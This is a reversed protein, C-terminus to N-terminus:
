AIALANAITISFNVATHTGSQSGTTTIFTAAQANALSTSLNFTNANIVTVWYTTSASLGTPLAGSTTLQIRDGSSLGHATWTMVAPAAITVTVTSTAYKNISYYLQDLVLKGTSLTPATGGAFQYPWAYALTRSGTIDQMISIVGTQGAVANTPTGLTRNGGLIVSFNNGLSADIAITAADTLTVFTGRQAKTYSQPTGLVAITDTVAQLTLVGSSGIAPGQLTVGTSTSGSFFVKGLLTGTLGVNLIGANTLRMAENTTATGGVLWNHYGVSSAKNAVYTIPGDTNQFIFQNANAFATGFTTDTYGSSNLFMGAFHTFDNSVALDNNLFYGNYASTGNSTNGTGIVVGNTTNDTGWLEMGPSTGASLITNNPSANGLKTYRANQIINGDFQSQGAQVWLAYSNTITVGTGAVPAGSVTLTGAKTFTAAATTKNYTPAQFLYERQTAVTGDAWTRTAGVVNYGISETAATIGTDASANIKFYSAVGSSRASPSFTHVGTWTPVIAQSLAPAGDSRLFTAASGNIATLGITATPNAGTPITIATINGNLKQIAQLISDTSAVTGAGSVYGTLLKGTIDADTAASIATGTGKLIGTISTAITLAPTAGGSSSGTFGNSSAITIATVYTGAPQKNNFTSWDTNSLKGTNIASAIPLNFKHDGSGNDVIAFDTGTAGVTLTQASTADTNISAIGTASITGNEWQKTTSNYKLVNGNALTSDSISVDHLQFLNRWGGGNPRPQEPLGKIHSADIKFLDNDPLANIKGVIDEGRDPSGDNGDEPVPIQALIKEYDVVADKGDNYDKGKIPTIEKRFNEIEEDTYYDRGKIPADGKDGKLTIVSLGQITVEMSTPFPPVIMEKQEPIVTPPIERIAKAVEGFQADIKSNVSDIKEEVNIFEKAMGLNGTKDLM